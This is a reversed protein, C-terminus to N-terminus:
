PAVLCLVKLPTIPSNFVIAMRKCNLLSYKEKFGLMWSLSRYISGSFQHNYPKPTVEVNRNKEEDMMYSNRSHPFNLLSRM